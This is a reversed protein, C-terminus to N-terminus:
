FDLYIEARRNVRRGEPNDEGSETVNPRRPQSSGFANMVIQSPAVGTRSLFAHVAEARNKSLQRNYDDTGLADTHGSIHLKKDPDARLILSVIELQRRARPSIDGSDFDFYLALTDGGSPNKVLPTYYIDGQAFKRAYDALLNDLNIETISWSQGDPSRRLNMAFQATHSASDASDVMVLFGATDGRQLVLRIPLKPRLTYKGEEFLICLGAIKADSISQPDVFQRSKGFEQKLVSQLFADAIALPDAAPRANNTADGSTAPLTIRNIEWRNGNRKFDFYLRQQDPLELAWRTSQDPGNEGVQRISGPHRLPIKLAALQQLAAVTQPDSSASGSLKLALNIDGNELARAIQDILGDPTLATEPLGVAPAHHTPSPSPKAPEPLSQTTGSAPSPAQIPPPPDPREASRRILLILASVALGASIALFVYPLKSTRHM